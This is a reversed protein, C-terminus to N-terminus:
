ENVEENSFDFEEPFGTQLIFENRCIDLPPFVYHLINEFTSEEGDPVKKWVKTRIQKRLLSPLLFDFTLGLKKRNGNKNKDKGIEAFKAYEDYIDKFPIPETKWGRDNDLIRGRQLLKFYFQAECDMEALKEEIVGETLPPKRVNFDSLDYNLLFFLLAAKGGNNHKKLMEKFYEQNNRESEGVNLVCFRREDFTFPVAQLANTAMLFRHFSPVGKKDIGKHEISIERDTIMNRFRQKEEETRGAWSMEDLFVILKNELDGNFKGIVKDVSNLEVTHIGFLSRFLSIFQGKGVGKRGKLIIVVGPKEEPHQVCHALYGILYNYLKEHEKCVNKFAHDLFYSCDGEKPEVSFGQWTNYQDSFEKREVTPYFCFGYKFTKRDPSDFWYNVARKGTSSKRTDNRHAQLFDYMRICRFSKRGFDDRHNKDLIKYGEGIGIVAYKENYEKIIERDTSSSSSNSINLSLEEQIDDYNMKEYEKEEM